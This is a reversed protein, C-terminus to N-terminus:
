AVVDSGNCFLWCRILVMEESVCKEEVRVCLLAMVFVMVFVM